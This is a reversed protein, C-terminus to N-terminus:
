SVRTIIEPQSSGVRFRVEEVFCEKATWDFQTNAPKPYNKSTKRTQYLARNHALGRKWDDTTRIRHAEGEHSHDQHFGELEPAWHPAYGARDVRDRFDDDEGAVGNLYEFDVGGTERAAKRPLFSTYWYSSERGYKELTHGAVRGLFGKWGFNVWSNNKDLWKNSDQTGLYTTGFLYVGEENMIRIAALEFNEPAHLIEPHCLSIIPGRALHMGLNITLAPTHFWNKKQGPTWGPNKHRFIPHRTHDFKIHRLNIRGVLHKYTESLDETSLDDVLLVEWSEAPMTQWLYGQLARKFLTSRNHISLVSSVVVHGVDRWLKKRDAWADALYPAVYGQESRPTVNGYNSQTVVGLGTSIVGRPQQAPQVVVAQYQHHVNPRVAPHELVGAPVGQAPAANPAVSQTHHQVTVSAPIVGPGQSPPAAVGPVGPNPTLVGLPKSGHSPGGTPTPGGVVGLPQTM